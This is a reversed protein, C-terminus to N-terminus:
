IYKFVFWEVLTLTQGFCFRQLFRFFTTFNILLQKSIIKTSSVSTEFRSSYCLYEGLPFGVLPNHLSKRTSKFFNVVESIIIRDVRILRIIVNFSVLCDNISWYLFMGSKCQNWFSVPTSLSHCHYYERPNSFSHMSFSHTLSQLISRM